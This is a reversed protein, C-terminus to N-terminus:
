DHIRGDNVAESVTWAHGSKNAFYPKLTSKKTVSKIKVKTNSVVFRKDTKKNKSVAKPNTRMANYQKVENQVTGKIDITMKHMDTGNSFLIEKHEISELKFHGIPEGSKIWHSGKGPQSVLALSEEPRSHNYSTAILEFKPTVKIPKKKIAVTREPKLEPEDNKKLNPSEPPNLYLAFIQAQKVLPTIARQGEDSLKNDTKIFKGTLTLEKYLEFSETNSLCNKGCLVFIIGATNLAFVNLIYILRIM